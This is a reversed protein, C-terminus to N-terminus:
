DFIINKIIMNLITNENQNDIIDLYHSKKNKQPILDFLIDKNMQHLIPDKYNNIEKKKSEENIDVIKNEILENKHNLIILVNVDRLEDENLLDHMVEIAEDLKEKNDYNIIYIVCQFLINRYFNSWFEKIDYNLDWIYAEYYDNEIKKYNFALKYEIVIYKDTIKLKKM